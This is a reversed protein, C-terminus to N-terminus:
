SPVGQDILKTSKKDFCSPKWKPPNPKSLDPPLPTPTKEQPPHEALFKLLSLYRQHESPLLASLEAQVEDQTAMSPGSAVTADVCTVTTATPTAPSSPVYLISDPTKPIVYKIAPKKAEDELCAAYIDFFVQRHKLLYGANARPDDSQVVLTIRRWVHLTLWTFFPLADGFREAARFEIRQLTKLETENCENSLQEKLNEGNHMGENYETKFAKWREVVEPSAVTTKAKPKPNGQKGQQSVQTQTPEGPLHEGPSKILSKETLSNSPSVQLSDLVLRPPKDGGSLPPKDGGLVIRLQAMEAVTPWADLGNGRQCVGLRFHDITKGYYRPIEGYYRGRKHVAVGARELTALATRFQDETMECAAAIDKRTMVWWYAREGWSGGERVTRLRAPNPGPANRQAHYVLFSYLRAANLPSRCYDSFFNVYELKPRVLTHKGQKPKPKAITHASQCVAAQPPMEFNQKILENSM